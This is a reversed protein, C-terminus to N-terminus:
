SLRPDSGLPRPQAALWDSCLEHRTVAAAGAREVLEILCYITRKIFYHADIAM